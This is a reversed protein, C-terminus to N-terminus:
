VRVLFYGFSLGSGFAVMCALKGALPTFLGDERMERMAIPISAASTNGYKHV